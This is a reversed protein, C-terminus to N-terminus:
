CPPRGPMPQLPSESPGVRRVTLSTSWEVIQRVHTGARVAPEFRFGPVTALTADAFARNTYRIIRVTGPEPMGSADVVVSLTASYCARDYLQPNFDSRLLQERLRAPKDVACALFLPAHAVSTSDQDSRDCAHRRSHADGAARAGTAAPESAHKAACGAVIIVMAAGLAV